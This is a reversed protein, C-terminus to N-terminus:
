VTLTSRATIDLDCVGDFAALVIPEVVRWDLGGNGCGPPPLAVRKAGAKRALEALQAVGSQIWALQSPFRWHEKTALAAWQRGDPLPLLICRGPKLRGDRIAALYPKMVADGYTTKFDLAVGKGMVGVTNVTNTIIDADSATINLGPLYRVAM